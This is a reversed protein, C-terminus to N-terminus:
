WYLSLAAELEHATHLENSVRIDWRRSSGFRNEWRAVAENGRNGNLFSQRGVSLYTKWGPVLTGVIGARPQLALTGSGAHSTQMSLDVMGGGTKLVTCSSCQLDHSEAGAQFDWAWGGDGPLPTRAANFNEVRIVHFTRLRLEDRLITAKLDFIALDSHPIRGADLSLPDYSSPRLRM